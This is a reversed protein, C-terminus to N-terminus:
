LEPGNSLSEIITPDEDSEEADNSAKGNTIPSDLHEAIVDREELNERLTRSRMSMTRVEIMRIWPLDEGEPDLQADVTVYDYSPYNDEDTDSQYYRSLSNAVKNSTGKIYQIDYDFQSLYEMWRMQCGSLCQQTKFFELARHDTVVNLRNGTLKDEWKLLAELIAITKMEFVHYNLQAGSNRLCSGLPDAHRGHKAKDM